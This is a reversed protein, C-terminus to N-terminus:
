MHCSMFCELISITRVIAACHYLVHTEVIVAAATAHLVAMSEVTSSIQDHSMKTTHWNLTEWGGKTMEDVLEHGKITTDQQQQPQRQQLMERQQQIEPPPQPEMNQQHPHQGKPTRGRAPPRKAAWEQGRRRAADVGRYGHYGHHGSESYRDSQM